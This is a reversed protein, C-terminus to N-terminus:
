TRRWLAVLNRGDAAVTTLGLLQVVMPLGFACPVASRVVLGLGVSAAGVAAALAPGAVVIRSADRSQAHVVVVGGARSSGVFSPTGAVHAALGHGIEHCVQGAVVGAGLAVSYPLWWPVSIAAIALLAILLAAWTARQRGAVEAAIARAAALPSGDLGRRRRVARWWTRRQVAAVPHRLLAVLGPRDPGPQLELLWAQNLQEVLGGLDRRVSEAPLDFRAVVAEVIKGLRAGTILLEIYMRTAPTIPYRGRMPADVLADAEISVGDPLRGRADADFQLM